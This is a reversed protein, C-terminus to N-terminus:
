YTKIPLILQILSEDKINKIVIPKSDTNMFLVVEEENFSNVVVPSYYTAYIAQENYVHKCAIRPYVLIEGVKLNKFKM